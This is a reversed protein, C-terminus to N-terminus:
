LIYFFAEYVEFVLRVSGASRSYDYAVEWILLTHQSIVFLNYHRVGSLNNNVCNSPHIKYKLHHLSLDSSRRTPFSHLNQKTVQPLLFVLSHSTLPSRD